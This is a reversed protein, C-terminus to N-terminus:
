RGHCCLYKEVEEYAIEIWRSIRWPENQVTHTDKMIIELPGEGALRLTTALDERILEENFTLCIQTPNPKRSFIYNRGLKEAMIQQDTWPSVSIRRLRPVKLIYDIRDHIPECCGYANLGFKELIPLQYPLIFEAFMEPSIGVTEQSEAFGWIDRLRVPMGPKWDPQPLERTYASGGSGSYDDENGHTLLGEAELWNIFDMHRDRLWAMLRHLGEPQDYPALMLTELGILKIAEWTLGSTWWHKGRIRVPLLDGFLSNALDVEAQTGERDVSRVPLKLQSMGEDINEFPATWHYSGRGAGHEYPVKVGYDGQNVRWNINFFPEIANDDRFHEWWYVKMRLGREWERLKENECEMASRPLIEDWAGEPYCLVVPREPQLSNLATLRRKHVAQEPHEAIERVRGALARLIERDKQSAPVALSLNQATM